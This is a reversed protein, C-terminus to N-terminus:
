QDFGVGHRGLVQDRLETLFGRTYRRTLGVSRSGRTAKVLIPMWLNRHESSRHVRGNMGGAATGGGGGGVDNIGGCGVQVGVMGLWSKGGVGGDNM